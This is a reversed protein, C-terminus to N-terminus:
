LGQLVRFVSLLFFFVRCSSSTWCKASHVQLHLLVHFFTSRFLIGNTQARPFMWYLGNLVTLPVSNQLSVIINLIDCCDPPPGPFFTIPSYHVSFFFFRTFLLSFDCHIREQLVIYIFDRNPPAQFSNHKKHSAESQLHLKRPCVTYSCICNIWYM